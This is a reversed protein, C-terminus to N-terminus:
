MNSLSFFRLELEEVKMSTFLCSAMVSGERVLVIMVECVSGQQKSEGGKSLKCLSLM